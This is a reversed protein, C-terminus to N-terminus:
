KNNYPVDVYTCVYMYQASVKRRHLDLSLIYQPTEKAEAVKNSVENVSPRALENVHLCQQIVTHLPHHNPVKNIDKKTQVSEPLTSIDALLLNTTVTQFFLAGLSFVDSSYTYHSNNKIEPAQYTALYAKFLDTSVKDLSLIQPCIYDAIKARLEHTILVNNSHLNKHVIGASHLYQLGQAMDDCINIQLYVQMKEKLRIIFKDLNEPLLESLLVLSSTQELAVEYKEINPHKISQLLKTTENLLKDMQDSNPKIREHIKKAAFWKGNYGVKYTDGYQGNGM